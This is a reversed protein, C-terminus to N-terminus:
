SIKSFGEIFRRYYGALGLFSRVEKVNTPTKWELIAKVKEPDMKVGEGTIIHGLFAIEKTWFECKSFKAYLKNERLRALVKRLHQEHEEQTSSYVLIDDVFVVVFQDLFDMMVKNMLNMFFAPANTLGFPVVTFEYLGYRTTFATKQRDEPRIKLQHYGSRLDIKSIQTDDALFGGLLGLLFPM